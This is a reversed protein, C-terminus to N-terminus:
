QLKALANRAKRVEEKASPYNKIVKQFEEAAKAPQNINLYCFGIRLQAYAEKNHDGLGFVKMFAPLADEYNKMGFLAEGIWYQANDAFPHAPNIEVIQEFLPIAENYKKIEMLRNANAYLKEQQAETNSASQNNAVLVPKPAQEQETKLRETLMQGEVTEDFLEFSVRRNLSSGKLGEVLPKNDEALGIEIRNGTEKQEDVPFYELILKGVMIARKEPIERYLDASGEDDSYGTIRLNLKEDNKLMKVIKNLTLIYNGSLKASPSKWEGREYFIDDITLNFFDLIQAKVPQIASPGKVPTKVIGPVVVKDMTPPQATIVGASTKATDTPTPTASIPIVKLKTSDSSVKVSDSKVVQQKTVPTQTKSLIKALSDPSVSKTQVQTQPKLTMQQTTGPYAPKVTEKEVAEKGGGCSVMLFATLLWAFKKM